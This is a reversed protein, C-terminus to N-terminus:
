EKKSEYIKILYGHLNATANILKLLEKKTLSKSEKKVRAILSLLDKM